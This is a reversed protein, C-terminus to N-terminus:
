IWSVTVAPNTASGAITIGAAAPMEFDYVGGIAASAPLAGIITGSNTTANDFIQMATVGTTTVLVRCLRGATAKVVVNSANAPVSTTVLGGSTVLAEGMVDGTIGVLNGTTAATPSTTLAKVGGYFANAPVASGTATGSVVTANLSSASGQLVKIADAPPPTARLTVTGTFTGSTLASVAIQFFNGRVPSYYITSNAVGLGGLANSSGALGFSNSNVYTGGSVTSFQGTLALGSGVSTYVVEVWSYGRTDTNALLTQAGAISTTFALTKVGSAIAVGNFGADGAVVGATNTGDNIAISDNAGALPANNTLLRGSSDLMLPSTNTNALTPPTSLYEGGTITPTAVSGGGGFSTIQNGAGDVIEVALPNSNTLNTVTALTTTSVGDNIAQSAASTGGTSNVLLRGTAPDAELPVITGDQANSEAFLVPVRNQERPARGSLPEVAM